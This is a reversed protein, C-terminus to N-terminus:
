CKHELIGKFITNNNNNNKHKEWKRGFLLMIPNKSNDISKNQKSVPLLFNKINPYLLKM